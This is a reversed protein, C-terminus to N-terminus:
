NKRWALFDGQSADEAIKTISTEKTEILRSRKVGDAGFGRDGGGAGSVMSAKLDTSIKNLATTMTMSLANLKTEKDHMMTNITVEGKRMMEKLAEEKEDVATM